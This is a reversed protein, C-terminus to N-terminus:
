KIGNKLISLMRSRSKLIAPRFFAKGRSPDAAAEFMVAYYAKRQGVMIWINRSNEQKVIRVSHLLEGATRATWWKNANKGTKYVPRSIAHQIISRLNARTNEALVEAAANMREAVIADVANNAVQPHWFIHHKATLGM